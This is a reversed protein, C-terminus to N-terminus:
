SLRGNEVSYNIDTIGMTSKRHSVLVVTQQSAQDAISKLIIGENLSDLNSTPEDLLIFPAEHLFARALGIRQREGGSLSDGLEGVPTDYGKPLAAIFEHISAKKAAAEVEADTADLKAIKINAGITDNFLHTTQTVYSENVRLSHTNIKAVDEGALAVLGSNRDWFRMLLKLLTSKGSGSKGHLGIIKGKPFVLSVDDLIKEDEYAFNVNKLEAGDFVVDVGDTVEQVVPAEDLLDLVREGSAFTQLLNNSLNSLAATPGFSSFMAIVPVLLGYFDLIGQNYLSLAGFFMILSFGLIALNTVALVAGEQNKLYKQQADLKQSQDIISKLRNEGDAYQISETLGRLSDLLYSNMDGFDDRYTKGSEAGIKSATVPILVGVTLYAALSILGLIWHFSGIFLIMVISTLIAIAIPAITHAYFVELLEIDSTIISILNGKDRGELKAPSLRRLAKFVKDRIIALLKFAIFHGSAQEIYHLVGRLLGLVVVIILITKLAFPTEFGLASVIGFGGFVTLFIACFYGLVGMLITVTMIHALPKVLGILRAMIQIPHRKM